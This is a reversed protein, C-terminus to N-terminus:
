DLGCTIAAALITGAMRTKAGFGLRNAFAEAAADGQTMSITIWEFITDASKSQGFQDAYCVCAAREDGSAVCAEIMTAKRDGAAILPAV